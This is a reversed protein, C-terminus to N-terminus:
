LKDIALALLFNLLEFFAVVIVCIAVTAITNKFVDKLTPWKVLAMEKKVSKLYSEKKTKKTQKKEAKKSAAKAM